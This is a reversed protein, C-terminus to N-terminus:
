RREREEKIGRPLISIPESSDCGMVVKELEEIDERTLKELYM